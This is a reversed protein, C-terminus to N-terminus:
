SARAEFLAVVGRVEIRVDIFRQLLAIELDELRDSANSFVGKRNYFGMLAQAARSRPRDGQLITAGFVRAGPALAPRLHDLVVAKEPISGPLCHFLYCLGVSDFKDGLPLPALCNAQVTRPAFRAIRHSAAALSNPNLDLLAISPNSVPWRAHDLYYGTGVGIDLHRATVNRDYLNMIEATPCRWLLHNSLGLVLVDYLRLVLPSYVAQGAAIEELTPM